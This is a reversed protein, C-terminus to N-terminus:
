TACAVLIKEIQKKCELEDPDLDRVVTGYESVLAGLIANISTMRAGRFGCQKGAEEM